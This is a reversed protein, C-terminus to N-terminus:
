TATREHSSGLDAGPAAAAAGDGGLRTVVDRFEQQVTPRWYSGPDTRMMTLIEDHRLQDATRDIPTTEAGRADALSAQPQVARAQIREISESWSERLEANAPSWYSAADTRLLETAKVIAAADEEATPPPGLFAEAGVETIQARVAMAAAIHEPSWHKAAAFEAFSEAVKSVDKMQRGHDRYWDMVQTFQSHTLGARKMGGRMARLSLQDADTHLGYQTYQDMTLEVWEEHNSFQLRRYINRCRGSRAAAVKARLYATLATRAEDETPFGDKTIAGDAVCVISWKSHVGLHRVVHTVVATAAPDVADFTWHQLKAVVARNNQRGQGPGSVQRVSLLAEYSGDDALVRIWDGVLMSPAVLSWYDPSLVDKFATGKPIAVGHINGWDRASCMLTKLRANTIPPTPRKTPTATPTDAGMTGVPPAAPKTKTTADNM